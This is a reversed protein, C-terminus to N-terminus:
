PVRAGREGNTEDVGAQEGADQKTEQMHHLTHKDDYDRMAPLDAICSSSALTGPARVRAARGARTPLTAWGRSVQGLAPSSKTVAERSLPLSSYLVRRLASRHVISVYTM